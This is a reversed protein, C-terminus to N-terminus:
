WSLTEGTNPDYMEKRRLKLIPAIHGTDKVLSFVKFGNSTLKSDNKAKCPLEFVYGIKILAQLYKYVNSRPDKENGESVMAVVDNVTFKRQLRVIKWIRDRFGNKDRARNIIKTGAPCGTKFYLAKNKEESTKLSKGKKSLKYIGNELRVAFGSSCLKSMAIIICHRSLTTKSDLEDLTIPHESVLAFVKNINKATNNM